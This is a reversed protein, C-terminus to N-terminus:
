RSQPEYNKSDLKKKLKNIDKIPYVCVGKGKTEGNYLNVTKYVMSNLDIMAVVQCTTTDNFSSYKIWVEGKDGEPVQEWPDFSPESKEQPSEADVPVVRDHYLRLIEGNELKIRYCDKDDEIIKEVVECVESLQNNHDIYRCKDGPNM